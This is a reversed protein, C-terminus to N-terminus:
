KCISCCTATEFDYEDEETMKMDQHERMNAICEEALKTLELVQKVICDGGVHYWIINQSPDYTCIFVVCASNVIHDHTRNPDNLIKLYSELDAYVIYPRMRQNKFNNFKMM